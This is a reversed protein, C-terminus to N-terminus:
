HSLSGELWARKEVCGEFRSEWLVLPRFFTYVLSVLSLFAQYFFVLLDLVTVSFRIDKGVSQGLLYDKILM